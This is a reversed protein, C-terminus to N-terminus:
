RQSLGAPSHAILYLANKVKSLTSESTSLVADIIYQRPNDSSPDDAYDAKMSGAAFVLDLYDVLAEAKDIITGPASDYVAVYESFDSRVYDDQNSFGELGTVNLWGPDNVLDETYNIADVVQTETTLQLEPATLGAISLEGGPSYDPLFFNFVSPASMPSQGFVPTRTTIHIISADAPFNDAQSAAFDMAPWNSDEGTVPLPIVNGSGPTVTYNPGSALRTLIELPIRSQANMARIVHAVVIAPEKSKGAGARTDAIELDRVERDMLIARVVKEMDGATGGADVLASGTHHNTGGEFVSAVRYVYGPSPNSSTFRKILLKSLFPATNPHTALTDLAQTLDQQGSQGAPFDTQEPTGAYITKAETDHRLNTGSFGNSADFSWMPETWQTQWLYRNGNGRNFSTNNVIAGSNNEYKSFSWGTFVRALEEIDVNGYTQIPQGNGGLRVRGDPLLQLLGISFLQQIERAYNEDPFVIINGEGDRITENKLHSLYQGMLPSKSVYEILDRFNGTGFAGLDDWWDAAAYHRTNIQGELRSIVWIESFALAMRQRFQDNAYSFLTWMSGEFNTAQPVHNNVPNLRSTPGQADEANSGHAYRHGHFEYEDLAWVLDYLRTQDLALQDTMWQQYAAQQDFTGGGADYAPNTTIENYLADIDVMRPGWTTQTLFRAVDRRLAEGAPLPAVPDPSEYAATEAAGLAVAGDFEEFFAWIEGAGNNLTHVNCYLSLGNQRYLADILAKVSYGGTAEI